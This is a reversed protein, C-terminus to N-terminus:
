DDGFVTEIMTLVNENSVQWYDDISDREMLGQLVASGLSTANTCESVAYAATGPSYLFTISSDDVYMYAGISEGFRAVYVNGDLVAGIMLMAVDEPANRVCDTLMCVIFEERMFASSAWEAPTKEMGDLINADIYYLEGDAAALCSLGSVLLVLTLLLVSLKRMMRTKM